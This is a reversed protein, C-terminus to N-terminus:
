SSVAAGSDVAFWAGASWWVPVGSGSGAGEGAKRGDLAYAWDGEGVGATPLDAVTAVARYFTVAVDATLDGGAHLGGVAVIRASRPAAALAAAHAQDVKDGVGGVRDYLAQVFARWPRTLAGAADVAATRLPPAPVPVPAM